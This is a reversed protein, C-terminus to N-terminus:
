IKNVVEQTSIFTHIQFIDTETTNLFHQLLEMYLVEMPSLFTAGIQPAHETNFEVLTRRPTTISFHSVKDELSAQKDM